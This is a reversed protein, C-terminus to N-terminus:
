ILRQVLTFFSANIAPAVIRKDSDYFAATKKPAQLWKIACPVQDILEWEVATRLMVRIAVEKSSIGSPKLRNAKAYGDVFRSAFERVTPAKPEEKSGRWGDRPLRLSEPRAM